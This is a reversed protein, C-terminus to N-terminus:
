ITLGRAESWELGDGHNTADRDIWHGWVGDVDAGVGPYPLARIPAGAPRRHITTEGRYLSAGRQGSFLHLRQRDVGRVRLDDVSAHDRSVRIRVASYPLAGVAALRPREHDGM